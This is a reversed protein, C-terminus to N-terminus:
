RFHRLAKFMHGISYFIPYKKYKCYFFRYLTKYLGFHRTNWLHGSMAVQIDKLGKEKLFDNYRALADFRSDLVSEKRQKTLSNNSETVCYITQKLCLINQAYYISKLSFNVDNSAIIEEFYVGKNKVLDLSILKSWPVYFKFLVHKNNSKLFDDILFSYPKHRTGVENNSTNLSTPDFFIMDYEEEINAKILEFSNELFYDDADAFLLYKGEAKQIGINRAAGAGKKGEPVKLFLVHSFSNKVASIDQASGDDVVITKIWGENPISELLRKLTKISNYHPIIISIKVM